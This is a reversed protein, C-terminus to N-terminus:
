FIVKANMAKVVNAFPMPPYNMTICHISGQGQTSLQRSNVTVVNLGFSKYIDIVAQDNKEGYIPLFVTGNVILSNIYTEYNLDPEPLLHVTFGMKELIPVYQEEDTIVVDDSIFKVVEDAHGIGKLHKLRTLTKCGYKSRFVDDPIAATDSVGGPYSKKRNVVVCDGKSNTGFNGGEYFYNHALLNVAFLQSFFADPEFNYYYRANTLTFKGDVWVPMPLNDRSWFDNSGSTPIQLVHLRDKAIYQAYSDFLNKQYKKDSSQTYVILHVDAPLGAALTQKMKTAVGYFDDDSMVVYGTKDYEHFPQVNETNRLGLPGLVVERQASEANHRAMEEIQQDSPGHVGVLQQGWVNSSLTLSVFMSIFFKM